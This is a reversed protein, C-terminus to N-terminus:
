RYSRLFSEVDRNEEGQEESESAVAQRVVAEFYAATDGNFQETIIDVVREIQEDASLHEGKQKPDSTSDSAMEGKRDFAYGVAQSAPMLDMRFHRFFCPKGAGEYLSIWDFTLVEKKSTAPTGSSVQREALGKERRSECYHISPSFVDLAAM